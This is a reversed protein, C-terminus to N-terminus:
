SMLDKKTFISRLIESSKSIAWGKYKWEALKKKDMKKKLNIILDNAQSYKYGEGSTFEMVYYCEDEADLYPHLDRTLEDIKTLLYEM